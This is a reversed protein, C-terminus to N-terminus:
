VLSLREAMRTQWGPGTAKWRALVDDSLRLSIATKPPGLRPRGRLKRQLSVPLGSFSAARATTEATWEPNEADILAPNLKKKM